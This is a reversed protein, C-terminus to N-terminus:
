LVRRESATITRRRVIGRPDLPTARYYPEAAPARWDVVMPEYAEDRLGIRGVYRTEGGAFDLRGFLLGERQADLVARRLVAHHMFVDSEYLSRYDEERVGGEVGLKGRAIAEHGLDVARTAAVDLRANVRDLYRQEAAIEADVTTRAAPEM